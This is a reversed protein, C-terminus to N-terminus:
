VYLSHGGHFGAADPQPLPKALWNAVHPRPSAIGSLVFDEDNLELRTALRDSRRFGLDTALLPLADLICWAQEGNVRLLGHPEPRHLTRKAIMHGASLHHPLVVEQGDDLARLRAGALTLAFVFAMRLLGAPLQDDLLLERGFLQQRISLRLATESDDEVSIAVARRAREPLPERRSRM